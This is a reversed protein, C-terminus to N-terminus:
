PNHRVEIMDDDELGLDEPTSAPNIKDGDFVFTLDSPSLKAKKAYAKFLKDFKEDKYVRFQQQGDKEQITIILKERSKEVQREPSKDLDIHEPPEHADVKQKATEVLKELIDNASEAFKAMVQKQLRLEQLISNKELEARVADKSKSPPPPLWDEEGLDAAAAVKAGPAAKQDAKDGEDAGDEADADGNSVKHRKNCHVFIDSNEIDTDDFNFAFAPQVRSYDFLPELEDEPARAGAEAGSAAAAAAMPMM